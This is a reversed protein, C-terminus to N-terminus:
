QKTKGTHAVIQKCYKVRGERFIYQQMFHVDYPMESDQIIGKEHGLLIVCDGQAVLSLLEPQQETLASYNKEIAACIEDVGKANLIFPFEDPFYMELIVDPAFFNVCASLNNSLIAVYLEQLTKVNSQETAKSSVQIDGQEFAEQIFERIPIELPLSMFVEKNPM